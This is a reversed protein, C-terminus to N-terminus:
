LTSLLAKVNQIPDGNSCTCFEPGCPEVPFIVGNNASDSCDVWTSDDVEEVTCYDVGVTSMM